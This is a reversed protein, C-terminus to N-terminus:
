GYFYSYNLAGSRWTLIGIEVFEKLQLCLEFEIVAIELTM